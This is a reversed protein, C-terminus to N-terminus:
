CVDNWTLETVEYRINYKMYYAVAENKTPFTKVLNFQKDRLFWPNHNRHNCIEPHCNYNHHKITHTNKM